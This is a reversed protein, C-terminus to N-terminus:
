GGFEGLRRQRHAPAAGPDTGTMPPRPDDAESPTGLIEAVEPGSPETRLLFGVEEPTLGLDRAVARRLLPVSPPVLGKPGAGFLRELFPGFADAVKRRSTHYRKGAKSRVSDRTARLIRTRGMQGLFEPFAGDVRRGPGGDALAVSVGGTMLESAFSWLSWVRYRRARALMLEADGLVQFAQWRATPSAGARPLNEEVWPLLDDPPADLRDRIEVSRYFRPHGFVDQILEASDGPIDRAGLLTAATVAEPRLSVAELDTLAARVDGQSRRVITEVVEPPIRLGEERVVKQVHARMEDPAVFAFRIRAVGQRFVPSYRTLPQPDNVTLLLPQRSEKVLRAIAGLGGRDSLDAPRQDSRWDALDRQAAPVKTWAGRGGTTPVSSWEAFAAPAGARGLGWASALAEVSGYRARLFERLSPPPPRAAAAETARGSLCDAEDLLILTRAGDRARRYEGGEGLTNTLAARGAVAGISAQNRADSANMEVLSWGRENALALAATTKGVGPPGELLAARLRPAGAGATAWSEAWSRLDRLARANGVMESLRTPRWRESLPRRDGPLRRPM